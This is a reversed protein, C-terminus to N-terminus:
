AKLREKDGTMMLSEVSGEAMAKLSIGGLYNLVTHTLGSWLQHTRCQVKDQGCGGVASPSCKTLLLNEEVALLIEALDIRSACRSLAYGGAAGRSSEVIGSRRLKIFLQELYTISINEKESIYSLPVMQQHELADYLCLMASVAYRGKSGLQM